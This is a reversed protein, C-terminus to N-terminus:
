PLKKCSVLITYGAFARPMIDFPSFSKLGLWGAFGFFGVVLVSHNGEIYTTASEELLPKITTNAQVDKPYRCYILPIKIRTRYPPLLPFQKIRKKLSIRIKMKFHFGKGHSTVKSLLENNNNVFDQLLKQLEVDNEMFEHCKDVLAEELTQGEELTVDVQIPTVYGDPGFRYLTVTKTTKVSKIASSELTIMKAEPPSVVSAAAMSTTCFVIMVVFASIKKILKQM